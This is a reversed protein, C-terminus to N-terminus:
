SAANGSGATGPEAAAFLQEIRALREAREGAVEGAASVVQRIKGLAENRAVADGPLMQPIAALAGDRDLLLGFFQERLLRKFEELTISGQEARMQRLVEFAREDVGPGAMGIYVLSRITAERLGGEALRAKLEAIRQQIFAVREPEIGPHRRLPEDAARIGVLAQLVPSSYLGLFIQEMTHDRLDRYGDLAAIIGDSIAAQVQLMPNDPSAPRRQERVQEALLAIQRMLPNRDSFLEFPLEAPNLKPLWEATQSNALAQVFPQFLTRYLGLNIESVRRAAAFRRENESDPQVIARVGELTRPEFRM